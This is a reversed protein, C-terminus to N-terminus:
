IILARSPGLCLRLSYRWAVDVVVARCVGHDCESFATGGATRASVGFNGEQITRAIGVGGRGPVSKKMDCDSSLRHRIGFGLHLLSASPSAAADGRLLPFFLGKFPPSAATDGEPDRDCRRRFQLRHRPMAKGKTVIRMSAVCDFWVSFSKSFEHFEKLVPSPLSVVSVWSRKNGAIEIAFSSNSILKRLAM